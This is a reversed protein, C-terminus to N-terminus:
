THSTIIAGQSPSTSGMSSAVMSSTDSAAHDHVPQLRHIDPRAVRAEHVPGRGFRDSRVSVVANVVTVNRYVTVERVRPGGWGAWYPRGVFAPRGWWPRLPEGWGLAVWSVSPGGVTVTVGAPLQRAKLEDESLGHALCYARFKPLPHPDTNLRLRM